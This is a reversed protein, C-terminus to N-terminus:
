FPFVATLGKAYKLLDTLTLKNESTLLAIQLLSRYGEESEVVLCYTGELVTADMMFVPKVNAKLCNHYFPAYGSLSGKDSLGIATYGAKAALFPIREAVLGSNLYSFGSHVRLAVFSM